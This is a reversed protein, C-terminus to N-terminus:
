IWKLEEVIDELKMGRSAKVLVMDGEKIYNRINNMIEEKTEFHEARFAASESVGSAEDAMFDSAKGVCYLRDIGSAAAHAGVERHGKEETDGLEFMDGLIAIKRGTWRTAALVDIASKMSDPSANYTDDIVTVTKGTVKKLRSGTLVAKSLGRCGEEFTVGLLRGVALAMAANLANHSGPLPLHVEREGDEFTLIFKIGEMGYDDVRSIRYDCDDWTGASIQRFSGKIKSENLYESDEAYVLVGGEEATPLNETIEMKAKFIGDRSGLKEIHAVGINTVVGVEPKVIKCLRRIEGFRDMGMELVAAETSSDMQFVSLPLGILNNYNKYNKVCSYKESLVHYILDRTSTKGVSGTVAVKRVNLSQLYFAAVEGLAYETDEVLIINLKERLEKGVKEPWDEMHSVLVTRCGSEAVQPIFMHGDANEGCIAVFMDGEGCERSDHRVGTIVDEPNGAELRGGSAKVIEKISLKNM